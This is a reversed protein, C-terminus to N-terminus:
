EKPKIGKVAEALKELNTKTAIKATTEAKIRKEVRFSPNLVELLWKNSKWDNPSKKKIEAIHYAELEATAAEFDLLFERYKGSKANRGRSLWRYLTAVDIKAAKACSEMSLGKRRMELVKNRIEENNFKTM